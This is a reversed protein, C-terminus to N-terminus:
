PHQPGQPPGDWYASVLAADVVNVKGDPIGAVLGSGGGVTGGTGGTLDAQTKYGLPGLPSTPIPKTWSASVTAADVVNVVGDNNADGFHTKAKWRHYAYIGPYVPNYYWGRMWAQEWHRMIAQELCFGPVDEVYISQLEYYISRRPWRTDPPIHSTPDAAIEAANYNNMATRPDPLNLEGNYVATDDPMLAGAQILADVRPNGYGQFVAFTGQSHMFPFAFNDADPYDVLWGITFLPLVHAKIANLYMFGWGAEQVEIHFKPNLSNINNALITYATLRASSGANIRLLMSMGKDWIAGEPTVPDDDPHGVWAAKLEETAKTLNFTPKANALNDYSLGPIIPDSPQNAEGLYATNLFTNFDFAATFGRRMHIDSFLNIPIRDEAIVAPNSHNFGSGLYPSIPNINFTFFLADVAINPEVPYFVRIPEGGVM